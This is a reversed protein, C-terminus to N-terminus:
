YENKQQNHKSFYQRKIEEAKVLEWMLIALLTVM